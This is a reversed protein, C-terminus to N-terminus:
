KSYYKAYIRKHDRIYKERLEALNGTKHETFIDDIPIGVSEIEANDIGYDPQAYSPCVKDNFVIQWNAAILQQKREHAEEINLGNEITKFALKPCDNYALQLTKCDHKNQELLRKHEKTRASLTKETFGVYIKGTRVHTIKYVLAM